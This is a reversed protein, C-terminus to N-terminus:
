TSGADNLAFSSKTPSRPTRLDQRNAGPPCSAALTYERVYNLLSPNGLEWEKHAQLRWVFAFAPLTEMHLERAPKAPSDLGTGIAGEVEPRALVLGSIPGRNRSWRFVVASRRTCQPAPLYFERKRGEFEACGASLAAATM